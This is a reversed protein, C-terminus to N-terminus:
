WHRTCTHTDCISSPTIDRSDHTMDCSDHWMLWTLHTMDCSDHWMLWTVFCHMIVLWTVHTTMDCSDHWVAICWATRWILTTPKIDNSAWQWHRTCTHKHTVDCILSGHWVDILWTVCTMDCILSDHGMGYWHKLRDRIQVESDTGPAHTHTVDCHTIGHAMDVNNDMELKNYAREHWMAYLHTTVDHWMLWTMYWYVSKEVRNKTSNTLEHLRQSCKHSNPGWQPLLAIRTCLASKHILWGSKWFWHIPWTV